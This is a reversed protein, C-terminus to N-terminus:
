TGLVWMTSLFVLWLCVTTQGQCTNPLAYLVGGREWVCVCLYKYFFIICRELVTTYVKEWLFIVMSTDLQSSSRSCLLGTLNELLSVLQGWPTSTGLGKMQFILFWYYFHEKFYFKLTEYMKEVGKIVKSCPKGINLVMTEPIQARNNSVLLYM